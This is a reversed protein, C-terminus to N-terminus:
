YKNVGSRKYFTKQKVSYMKRNSFCNKVYTITIQRM